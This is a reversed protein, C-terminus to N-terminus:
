KAEQIERIVGLLKITYKGDPNKKMAILMHDQKLDPKVFRMLNTIQSAPFESQAESVPGALRLAGSDSGSSTLDNLIDNIGNGYGMGTLDVSGIIKFDDIEEKTRSAKFKLHEGKQSPDALAVEGRKMDLDDTARPPDIYILDKTSIAGDSRGTSILKFEQRLRRNENSVNVSLDTRGEQMARTLNADVVIKINNFVKQYSPHSLLGVLAASFNDNEGGAQAKLREITHEYLSMAADLQDAPEALITQVERTLLEPEGSKLASAAENVTKYHTDADSLKKDGQVDPHYLKSQARAVGDVISLLTKVDVKKSTPDFVRQLISKGIGLARLNSM